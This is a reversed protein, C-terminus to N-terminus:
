WGPLNDRYLDDTRDRDRGDQMQNLMKRPRMLYPTLSTATAESRKQSLPNPSQKAPKVAIPSVIFLLVGKMESPIGSIRSDEFTFSSEALMRSVVSYTRSRSSLTMTRREIKKSRQKSYADPIVLLPRWFLIRKTLTRFLVGHPPLSSSQLLVAM